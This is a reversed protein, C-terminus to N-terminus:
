AWALLVQTIPLRISLPRPPDASKRRLEHACVDVLCLVITLGSGEDDLGDIFISVVKWCDIHDDGFDPEGIDGAHRGTLTGALDNLLTGVGVVLRDQGVVEVASLELTQALAPAVLRMETLIERM